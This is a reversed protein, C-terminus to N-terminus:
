GWVFETCMYDFAQGEQMGHPSSKPDAPNVAFVVVTVGNRSAVMVAFVVKAATSGTSVLNASYVAGVGDQDGLKAGKLTSVLTVSQWKATPLAAVTAQLVQDAQGGQMGTVQVSGVRTGLLIGNADQTRVTWRTSYNLQYGFATSKYSAAEALPTVIKPACNVTCTTHTGGIFHSVALASLAITVAALIILLGGAIAVQSLRHQATTPYAVPPAMPYSYVPQAVLAQAAVPAGCRGCFPSGPAVQAGCRGCFRPQVAM